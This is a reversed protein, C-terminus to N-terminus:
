GEVILVAVVYETGPTTSGIDSVLLGGRSYEWTCPVGSLVSGAGNAARVSLALVALPPARVSADVLMPPGGARFRLTTVKMQDALRLGGNLIARVERMHQAVERAIGRAEAVASLIM